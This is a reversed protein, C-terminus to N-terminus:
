YNGFFCFFFVVQIACFCWQNSKSRVNESGYEIKFITQPESTNKMNTKIRLGNKKVIIRQFNEKKFSLFFFTQRHKKNKFNMRFGFRYTRSYLTQQFMRM